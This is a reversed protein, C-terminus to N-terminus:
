DNWHAMLYNIGTTGDVFTSLNLSYDAAYQYEATLAMYNQLSGNNNFVGIRPFSNFAGTSAQTTSVDLTTNKILGKETGNRYASYLNGAAIGAESGLSVTNDNARYTTNTTTQGIVVGATGNTGGFAIATTGNATGKTAIYVGFIFSNQSAARDNISPIFTPTFYQSSGNTGVSTNATFGAGTRFMYGLGTWDFGINQVVTTKDVSLHELKFWNGNNYQATIFNDILTKRNANLEDFHSSIISRSWENTITSNIFWRNLMGGWWQLASNGYHLNDANMLAAEIFQAAYGVIYVNSNAEAAQIIANRIDYLEANFNGTVAGGTGAGGPVMMLIPTGPYDATVNAIFTNLGIIFNALSVGDRGDNIGCNSLIFLPRVLGKSALANNLKTKAAQYLDNPGSGMWHEQSADFPYFSSGGQGSNSLLIKRGTTANYAQAFYQYVSGTSGTNAVTQNTVATWTSGNWVDLIGAPIVPVVTGRGDGNSDCGLCAVLQEGAATTFDNGTFNHVVTGSGNIVVNGSANRVITQAECSFTLLLFLFLSIRKIM